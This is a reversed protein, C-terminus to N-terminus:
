VNLNLVETRGSEEANKVGCMRGDVTLRKGGDGSSCGSQSGSVDQEQVLLCLKGAKVMRAGGNLKM